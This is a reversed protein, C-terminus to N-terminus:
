SADSEERATEKGDRDEGLPETEHGRRYHAADNAGANIETSIDISIDIGEDFAAELDISLPNQETIANVGRGDHVLPKGNM